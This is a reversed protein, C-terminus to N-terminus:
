AKNCNSVHISLDGVKLCLFQSQIDFGMGVYSFFMSVSYLWHSLLFLWGAYGSKIYMHAIINISKIGKLVFVVFSRLKGNIFWIFLWCWQVRFRSIINDHKIAISFIRKVNSIGFVVLRTLVWKLDIFRTGWKYATIPLDPHCATINCLLYNMILGNHVM